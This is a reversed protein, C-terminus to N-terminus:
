RTSLSRWKNLPCKESRWALKNLFVRDVKCNCHCEMCRENQFSACSECIKLRALIEEQTCKKMGDHIHASLSNAFHALRVILSASNGANETSM